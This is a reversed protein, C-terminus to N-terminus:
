GSPVSEKGTTGQGEVAGSYYASGRYGHEDALAPKGALSSCEAPFSSTRRPLEPLFYNSPCSETRLLSQPPDEQAPLSNDMIPTSCSELRGPMKLGAEHEVIEQYKSFALQPGSFGGQAACPGLHHAQGPLGLCAQTWRPVSNLKAIM